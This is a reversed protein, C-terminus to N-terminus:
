VFEANDMKREHIKPKENGYGVVIALHIQESGSLHLSSACDAPELYKALGVPCSDLGLSKAALMMNQTCMGIDIEAWEQNMPATIFIVVPAQFFIIDATENNIMGHSLPFFSEAVKAIAASLTNIRTRDTVVYFKWPQRNMASPAMRGADIIQKILEQPVPEDKYKRVARRDYMTKITENM